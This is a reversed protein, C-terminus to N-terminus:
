DGGHLFGEEYDLLQRSLCSDGMKVVASLHDRYQFILIRNV